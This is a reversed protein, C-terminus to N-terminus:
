FPEALSAHSMNKTVRLILSFAKTMYAACYAPLWLSSHKILNGPHSLAVVDTLFSDRWLVVVMACQELTIPFPPCFNGAM